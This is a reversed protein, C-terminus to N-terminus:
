FFLLSSNFIPSSHFIPFLLYNFTIETLPSTPFPFCEYSLRIIELSFIKLFIIKNKNNTYFSSKIKFYLSFCFLFGSSLSLSYSPAALLNHPFHVFLFSDPCGLSSLKLYFVSSLLTM